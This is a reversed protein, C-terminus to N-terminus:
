PISESGESGQTMRIHAGSLPYIHLRSSGWLYFLGEGVFPMWVVVPLASSEGHNPSNAIQVMEDHM